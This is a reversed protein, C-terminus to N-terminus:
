FRKNSKLRTTIHLPGMRTTMAIMIQVIWITTLKGGPERVISESVVVNFRVISMGDNLAENTLKVLRTVM